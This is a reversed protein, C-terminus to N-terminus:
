KISNHKIAVINQISQNLNKIVKLLNETKEKTENMSSDVNIKNLLNDDSYADKVEKETKEKDSCYGDPQQYGFSSIRHLDVLAQKIERLENCGKNALDKREALHKPLKEDLTTVLNKLTTQIIALDANLTNIFLEDKKELTEKLAKQQKKNEKNLYSHGLCSFERPIDFQGHYHEKTIAFLTGLKKYDEAKVLKQVIKYYNTRHDSNGLDFARTKVDHCVNDEEAWIYDSAARLLGFGSSKLEPQQIMTMELSSSKYNEEMGLTVQTHAAALLLLLSILANQKNM